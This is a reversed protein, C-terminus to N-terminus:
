NVRVYLPVDSDPLDALGDRAVVKSDVPVADELDVIVADTGSRIAKEILDRRNGPTFLMSRLAQM